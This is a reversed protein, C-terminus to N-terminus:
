DAHHADRAGAFVRKVLSHVSKSLVALAGTVTVPTAGSPAAFVLTNSSGAM